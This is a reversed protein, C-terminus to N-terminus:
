VVRIKNQGFLKQRLLANLEEAGQDIKVEIPYYILPLHELEKAFSKLRMWDKETTIVWPKGAAEWKKILLAIDHRTFRHHDPYCLEGVKKKFRPLFNNAWASGHAIASFVFVNSESLNQETNNAHIVVPEMAEFRSFFIPGSFFPKARQIISERLETSLSNPCKTVILANARQAGNKSERLNGAPLLADDAFFDDYVSLLVSVTPKLYRHQFADDFLILSTDPYSALLEPVAVVRDECVVVTTDRFKNKIQLPEDGTQDANMAAEVWHFGKSKRGYGRSIVASQQDKFQRLFYETHPTKGSGGTNLNGIVLTPVEFRTSKLVGKDFLLNRLSTVIGYLPNLPFLWPRRM